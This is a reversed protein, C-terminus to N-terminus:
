KFSNGCVWVVLTKRIGKTVPTVRHLMFGPFAAILGKEKRVQVINNGAHIELDGGEYESPDSLQLVLSLKRPASVRPVNYDQHWGYHGSENGDYVTFQMHENFGYLDFKFFQGNLCRAVYGMQDYIFGTHENLEIWSVKSERIKSYDDDENSNGIVAKSLEQADCYSIISNLQDESFGNEWTAFPHESVGYTPSPAFVYNSM